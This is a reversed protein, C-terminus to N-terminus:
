RTRLSASLQDATAGPEYIVLGEDNRGWQRAVEDIIEWSALVEASSAFLTQDGQFADMLVREYADPRRSGKFSREYRFDMEAPIMTNGHGPKKVVIDLGIGENPQIKITLANRLVQRSGTAKFVLTIETTKETLAKGTQLIIPVGRWRPTDISLRLAAFTETTTNASEVEEKYGKYQGRITRSAVENPGIPSVAKLARVKAGRIVKASFQRPREMTVLALLQLLHSQVLDRLAGTQEYFGVRGEIGIQEAATIIIKEISRRNWINAFIPNQFRFVLLNQATEKALYHDIRYIQREQFHTGLKKIFEQASATDFGFPKEVLIRTDKGKNLGSEGLLEVVPGIVQPPMSLYFFRSVRNTGALAQLSHKLTTYDDKTTPNVQVMTLTGVFSKILDQNKQPFYAGIEAADMKKRSVGIIQINEPLLGEELLQLLAPLLYRRALDGTIGFIVLQIKSTSVM